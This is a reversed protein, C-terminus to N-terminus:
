PTPDPTVAPTDTPAPTPDVSPDSTPAASPTDVPGGSPDAAMTGVPAVLSFLLLMIQMGILLKRVRRLPRLAAASGMMSEVGRSPHTGFRGRTGGSASSKPSVARVIAPWEAPSPLTGNLVRRRYWDPGALVM